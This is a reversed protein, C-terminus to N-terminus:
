QVFLDKLFFNTWKRRVKHAVDQNFKAAGCYIIICLILNSCVNM